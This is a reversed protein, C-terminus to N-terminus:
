QITETNKLNGYVVIIKVRVVGEIIFEAKSFEQEATYSGLWSAM